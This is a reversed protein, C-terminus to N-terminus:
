PEKRGPPARSTSAITGPICTSGHRLGILSGQSSPSPEKVLRAAKIDPRSDETAPRRRRPCAAPAEPSARPRAAAVRGCGLGAARRRYVGGPGFWHQTYSNTIGHLDADGPLRRAPSRRTARTGSASPLSVAAPSSIRTSAPAPSPAAIGSWANASAPAVITGVSSATRRPPRRAAPGSAPRRRPSCAACRGPRRRAATAAGRGPASASAPRRRAHGRDAEIGDRPRQRPGLRHVRERRLRVDAAVLRDQDGGVRVPAVERQQRGGGAGGLGGVHQDEPMPTAPRWAIPM